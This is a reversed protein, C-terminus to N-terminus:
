ASLSAPAALPAPGASAVRTLMADFASEVKAKFDTEILYVETLEAFAWRGLRWRPRRRRPTRAGAIRGPRRRHSV